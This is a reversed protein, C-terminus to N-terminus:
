DGAAAEINALQQDIIPLLSLPVLGSHVIYNGQSIPLDGAQAPCTAPQSGLADWNGMDLTGPEGLDTIRIRLFGNVGPFGVPLDGSAREVRGIVTGSNLATSVCVADGALEIAPSRYRIFFHGRVEGSEPNRNANVHVQPSQLFPPPVVFTGTGAVVDRKPGTGASHTAGGTGVFVFPLVSALVVVFLARQMTVEEPRM